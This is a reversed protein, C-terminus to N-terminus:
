RGATARPCSRTGGAPSPGPDAPSPARRRHPRSRHRPPPSSRRAARSARRPGAGHRPRQLAGGRGAQLEHRAGRRRRPPRARDAAPVPGLARRRRGPHAGRRGAALHRAAPRPHTRLALGRAPRRVAARLPRAVPGLARDRAAPGARAPRPAAGRGRGRLLGRDQRRGARGRAAGGRAPARGGGRGARGRGAGPGADAHRWPGRPRPPPPVDVEVLGVPELLGAKAMGHLVGMGVGAREALAKALVADGEPLAALAQARKGKVATADLGPARRYGLKEPWPELAAPVPLALRLSSGLPALTERAVEEVLARVPEPMPAADLVQLLPKLRELPVRSSGPRHWVM